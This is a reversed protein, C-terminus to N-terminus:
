IQGASEQRGRGHSEISRVFARKTTENHLFQEKTLEHVQSQLYTVEDLIHHLYELPSQSM